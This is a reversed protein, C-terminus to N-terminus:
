NVEFIVFPEDIGDIEETGIGVVDLGMDRVFINFFEEIDGDDFETNFNLKLSESDVREVSRLPLDIHSVQSKKKLVELVYDVMDGKTADESIDEVRPHNGEIDDSNRLKWFLETNSGSASPINSTKM